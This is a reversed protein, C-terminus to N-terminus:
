LDPVTHFDLHGNQEGGGGGGGGETKLLGHSKQPRLVNSSSAILLSAARELGFKEPMFATTFWHKSNPKRPRM